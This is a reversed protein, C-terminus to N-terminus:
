QVGRDLEADELAAAEMGICGTEMREAVPTLIDLAAELAYDVDSETREQDLQEGAKVLCRLIARVQWLKSQHANLVHGVSDPLVIQRRIPPSSLETSIGTAQTLRLAQSICALAEGREDRNILDEARQLLEALNRM